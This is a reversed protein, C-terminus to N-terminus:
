ANSQDKEPQCNPILAEYEQALTLLIEEARDTLTTERALRRCRDAQEQLQGPPLTIFRLNPTM